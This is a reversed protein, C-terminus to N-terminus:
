KTERPPWLNVHLGYDKEVWAYKIRAADTLLGKFDELVTQGNEQYRFDIVAKVRKSLQYVVQYELNSIEGARERLQLMHARGAEGKSDYTRGDSETRIAGYKNATPAKGECMCQYCLGEWTNETLGCARCPAFIAPIDTTM